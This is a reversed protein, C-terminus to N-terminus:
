PHASNPDKQLSEFKNSIQSNQRNMSKVTKNKLSEEQIQINGINILKSRANM